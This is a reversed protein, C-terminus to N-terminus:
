FLGRLLPLSRIKADDDGEAIRTRVERRLVHLAENTLQGFCTSIEDTGQGDFAHPRRCHYLIPVVYISSSLDLCFTPSRGQSGGTQAIPIAETHSVGGSGVLNMEWSVLNVKAHSSLVSSTPLALFADQLQRICYSYM